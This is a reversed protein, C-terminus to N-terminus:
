TKTVEVWIRTPIKCNLSARASRPSTRMRLCTMRCSIKVLNVCGQSWSGKAVKRCASTPTKWKWTRRNMRCRKATKSTVSLHKIQVQRKWIRLFTRYLADQFCVNRIPPWRLAKGCCRKARLLILDLALQAQLDTEPWARKTRGSRRCSRRVKQDTTIELKAIFRIRLRERLITSKRFKKISIM